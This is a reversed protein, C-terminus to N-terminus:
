FTLLIWIEFMVCIKWNKFICAHSTLLFSHFCSSICYFVPCMFMFIRFHITAFIEPLLTVQMEDHIYNQSVVTMGLYTLKAMSEFLKEIIRMNHKKWM